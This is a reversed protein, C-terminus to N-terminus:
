QFCSGANAFVLLHASAAHEWPTLTRTLENAIKYSLGKCHVVITRSSFESYFYVNSLIHLDCAFFFVSDIHFVNDLLNYNGDKCLM